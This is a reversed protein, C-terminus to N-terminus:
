LGGEQQERLRDLFDPDTEQMKRQRHQEYEDCTRQMREKQQKLHFDICIKRERETINM